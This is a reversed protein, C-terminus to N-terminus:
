GRGSVHGPHHRHGYAFAERLASELQGPGYPKALVQSGVLKGILGGAGYGTTFLYPINRELLISAIPYSLEGALNLDLVAADIAVHKAKEIGEALRSATAAIICGLDALWEEIMMSLMSEDEVVFIRKGSLM